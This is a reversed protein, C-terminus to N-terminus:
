REVGLRAEKRVYGDYEAISRKNIFSAMNGLSFAQSLFLDLRAEEYYGPEEILAILDHQALKRCIWRGNLVNCQKM